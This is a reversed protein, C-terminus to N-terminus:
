AGAEQDAKVEFVMETSQSNELLIKGASQDIMSGQNECEQVEVTVLNKEEAISELQSRRNVIVKPAQKFSEERVRIM